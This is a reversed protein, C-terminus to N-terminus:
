SQGDPVGDGDTDTLFPNTGLAGIEEGDDLGDGDTDSQRPDTGYIDVEDADSLGDDDSDVLFPNTGSEEERADSLGDDDSDGEGAAFSPAPQFLSLTRESDAAAGFNVTFGGRDTCCPDRDLQTAAFPPPLANVILDYARPALGSWVWLAAEASTVGLPTEGAFLSLSVGPPAPVCLEAVLTESTMGPPCARLSVRLSAAADGAGNDPVIFWTCRVAEGAAVDVAALDRATEKGAVAGAPDRCTVRSYATPDRLGVLLTYRGPAIESFVVDGREDALFSLLTTGGSELSFATDTAPTVCDAAFDDGSYAAPCTSATIAISAIASTAAPVPTAAPTAQRGRLDVHAPVEEGIRAVVFTAPARSAGTVDVQGAFSLVGGAELDVIEGSSATAFVAGSTVLLISPAAGAPIAREEARLLADRILDIDFAAGAPTPFPGEFQTGGREDSLDHEARLAIEVYDVPRQELSVVAFSRGPDVWTAEGAALRTLIAGREDTIAISSRIAVIFGGARLPPAVGAAPTARMVTVQWGFTTAPLPTVGQAIVAAHGTAPSGPGRRAGGDQATAPSGSLLATWGVWAILSLAVLGRSFVHRSRTFSRMM